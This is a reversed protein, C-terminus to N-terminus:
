LRGSSTRLKYYENSGLRRMVEKADEEAHFDVGLNRWDEIVVLPVRAVRYLSKDKSWGANQMAMEHNEDLIAEVDQEVGVTWSGEGNDRLHWTTGTHPIAVGFDFDRFEPSASHESEVIRYQPLAPDSM